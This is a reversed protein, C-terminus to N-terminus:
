LSIIVKLLQVYNQKDEPKGDRQTPYEWYLDLGKFGYKKMFDLASDVFIKRSASTSAMTSFKASGQNWGGVAIMPVFNPNRRTLNSFRM